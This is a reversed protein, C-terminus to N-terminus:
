KTNTNGIYLGPAKLLTNNIPQINILIIVVSILKIKQHNNNM